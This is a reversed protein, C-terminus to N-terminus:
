GIEREALAAVAVLDVKGNGLRPLASVAHLRDPLVDPALTGRLSEGVVEVAAPDAELLTCLVGSRTVLTYTSAGTAARISADVVDLDVFSGHRKVRRGTRGLCFLASGTRAGLDGTVLREPSTWRPFGDGVGGFAYRSPLLPSGVALLEDEGSVDVSWDGVTGHGITVNGDLVEPAVGAPLRAFSAFGASESTGYTNVVLPVGLSVLQDFTSALLRDGGSGWVRLSPPAPVAENVALDVFRPAMRLHTGAVRGVFRLPRLRDSLSGSVHIAAGAALALVLNTMAMDYGLHSNEVWVSGADLELADAGHPAWAGLTAWPVLVGKPPGGTSGSSMAFYGAPHEQDQGSAGIDPQVVPAGDTGVVVSPRVAALVAAQREPALAPDIVCLTHDGLIAAVVQVVLGVSLPQVVAVVPRPGPTLARLAGAVSTAAAILAVDSLVTKSDAVGGTDAGRVRLVQEALPNVLRGDPRDSLVGEPAM